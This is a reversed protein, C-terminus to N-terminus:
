SIKKVYLSVLYPLVVDFSEVGGADIANKPWYIYEGNGLAPRKGYIWDTFHKGHAPMQATTLTYTRAGGRKGLEDYLPDDAKLGINLVGGRDDTGNRGDCIVWGTWNTNPKGLGTVLDFDINLDGPTVEEYMWVAGNGVVPDPTVPGGGIPVPSEDLQKYVLFIDCDTGVPDLGTLYLTNTGTFFYEVTEVFGTADVEFEGIENGGPTTGVLLTIVAASRKEICITELVSFQKFVNAVNFNGGVNYYYKIKQMPTFTNDPDTPDTTYKKFNNIVPQVEISGGMFSNSENTEIEYKAENIVQYPVNNYTVQDVSQIWNIKDMVWEPVGSKYGIFFKFTRYPTASLQTANIKQDTYVARSNQPNYNRIAAEVQFEFEIGTDFIIDFDNEYHKYKITLTNPQEDMVSLPESVLPHLNDDQDTYSFLAQYRGEPLESFLFSLEYVKFTENAILIDKLEWAVSNVIVNSVLDLFLLDTPVFDSLIQLKLTNSRKWKQFYCKPDQFDLIRDFSFNGDFGFNIDSTDILRLPNLIPIDFM